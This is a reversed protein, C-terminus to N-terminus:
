RRSPRGSVPVNGRVEGELNNVFEGGILFLSTSYYIWLMFIVFSSLSGYVTGLKLVNSVYLTFIHKAIELMVATALAGKFANRIRIKKTPMLKYISMLMCAALALPLIYKFLFRTLATVELWPIGHAMDNIFNVLSALIFSLLLFGLMLSVVLFSIFLTVILMRKKKSKFVTNIATQMAWYFQFSLIAYLVLSLRGMGRYTIIQRLASTVKETIDPFMGALRDTFFGLFEANIEMFHALVSILFLSLPIMAMISFFSLSAALMAGGDRFFDMISRLYLKIFRM